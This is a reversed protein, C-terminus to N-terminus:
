RCTIHPSIKRKTSGVYSSQWLDLVSVAFLLVHVAQAITFRPSTESSRPLLKEHCDKMAM